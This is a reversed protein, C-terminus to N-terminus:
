PKKSARGSSDHGAVRTMRRQTHGGDLCVRTVQQSEGDGGADRIPLELASFRDLRPGYQLEVTEPLEFLDFALDVERLLGSVFSSEVCPVCLVGPIGRSESMRPNFVKKQKRFREPSSSTVRDEFNAPHLDIGDGAFDNSGSQANVSAKTRAQELAYVLRAQRM